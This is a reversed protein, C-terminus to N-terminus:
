STEAGEAITRLLDGRTIVGVRKEKKNAVAVPKDSSIAHEILESLSANEDFTKATKALTGNASEFGKLPQM